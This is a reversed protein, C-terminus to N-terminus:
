SPSLKLIAITSPSLKNWWFSLKELFLTLSISVFLSIGFDTVLILAYKPASGILLARSSPASM